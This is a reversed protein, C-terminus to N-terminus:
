YPHKLAELGSETIRIERARVEVWGLELLRELMRAGLPVPLRDRLKWDGFRLHDLVQRQRGDAVRPKALDDDM